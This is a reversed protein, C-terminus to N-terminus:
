VAWEGRLRWMRIQHVEVDWSGLCGLMAGTRKLGLSWWVEEESVM